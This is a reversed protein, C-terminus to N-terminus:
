QSTCFLTPTETVANARKPKILPTWLDKEKMLDASLAAAVINGDTAATELHLEEWRLYVQQVCVPLWM